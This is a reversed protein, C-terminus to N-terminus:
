CSDRERDARIRLKESAPAGEYAEIWSELADREHRLAPPLDRAARPTMIPSPEDDGEVTTGFLEIELEEPSLSAYPTEPLDQARRQVEEDTTHDFPLPAQGKPYLDGVECGLGAALKLVSVSSPTRKGTEIQSVASPAMGSRSALQAGTLGLEERRRRVEEGIM